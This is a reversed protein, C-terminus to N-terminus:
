DAAEMQSAKLLVTNGDEKECRAAGANVWQRVTAVEGRGMLLEGKTEAGTRPEIFTRHVDVTARVQRGEKVM